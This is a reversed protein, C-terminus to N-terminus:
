GRGSGSRRGSPAHWRRRNRVAASARSDRLAGDPQRDISPARVHAVAVDVMPEGSEDFVRGNISGGQWLKIVVDDIHEDAALDISQLLGGPRRQGYGGNLYPGVQPGAWIFGAGEVNAGITARLTFSGAPVNRYLFRGQADTLVRISSGLSAGALTVIVSPVPVNSVADVVRGVILGKPAAGGRAAPAPAQAGLSAVLLASTLIALLTQNRM